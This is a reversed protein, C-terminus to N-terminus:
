LEKDQHAWFEDFAIMGHVWDGVKQTNTPTNKPESTITDVTLRALHLCNIPPPLEYGIVSKEHCVPPFADLLSIRWLARVAKPAHMDGCAIAKSFVHMWPNCNEDPSSETTTTATSTCHHHTNTSTLEPTIYLPPCGKMVFLALFSAVYARLLRAQKVLPLADFIIPIFYSSTLFHMFAFELAPKYGPRTLAGYVLAVVTMVEKCKAAISSADTPLAITWLKAYKIALAEAHARNDDTYSNDNYSVNKSLPDNRL